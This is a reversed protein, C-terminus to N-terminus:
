LGGASSFDLPSGGAQTPMDRDRAVQDPSTAAKLAANLRPAIAAILKLRIAQARLRKGRAIIVKVRAADLKQALTM